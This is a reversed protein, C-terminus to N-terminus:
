LYKREFEAEEPGALVYTHGGRSWSATLLKNVRVVQPASSPPDPVAEQPLVFLYLMQQDGRDFCVMSVAHGHWRLRGGGTLALQELGRTLTYDAPAGQAAMYRRVQTMDNTMIDMRSDYQRLAASVMRARYDAFREVGRPEFLFVALGALLLIAAAAALWSPRQWGLSPRVLKREKLIEERLTTSLPLERFKRRLTQQLACHAEFWGRLEPDHQAQALALAVEPDQADASGPRYLALVQQAERRTM